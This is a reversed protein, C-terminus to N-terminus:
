NGVVLAGGPARLFGGQWTAGATSSTLVLNGSEDRLFGQQWTNAM